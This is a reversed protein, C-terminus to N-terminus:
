DSDGGVLIGPMPPREQRQADEAVSAVCPGDACAYTLRTAAAGERELLWAHGPFTGQLLSARPHVTGYRFVAGEADVWSLSWTGDGCSNDFEMQVLADERDVSATGAAVPALRLREPDADALRPNTGGFISALLAFGDPDYMALGGPGPPPLRAERDVFEGHTGFYWMTLEAFYESACSGAYARGGDARTWRGELECAKHYTDRIQQVVADPLGVDM